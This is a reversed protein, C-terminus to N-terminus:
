TSIDLIKDMVSKKDEDFVAALDGIGCGHLVEISAAALCGISSGFALM